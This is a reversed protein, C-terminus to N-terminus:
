VSKIPESESVVCTVQLLTIGPHHLFESIMHKIETERTVKNQVWMEENQPLWVRQFSKSPLLPCHVMEEEDGRLSYFDAYRSDWSIVQSFLGQDRLM